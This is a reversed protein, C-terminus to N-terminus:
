INPVHQFMNSCHNAHGSFLSKEPNRQIVALRRAEEGRGGLSGSSKAASSHRPRWQLDASAASELNETIKKRYGLPTNFSNNSFEMIKNLWNFDPGFDDLRELDCDPGDPGDPGDAGPWRHRLCHIASKKSGIRFFYKVLSPMGGASAQYFPTNSPVMPFRLPSKKHSVRGPLRKCLSSSFVM